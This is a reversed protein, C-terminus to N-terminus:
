FYEDGYDLLLEQGRQILKVTRVGVKEHGMEGYVFFEVNKDQRNKSTVSNIYRTWNSHELDQADLCLRVQRDVGDYRRTVDVDLVYDGNSESTCPLGIYDGLYTGQQLNKFAFAGRGAGEINSLGIRINENIYKSLFLKLSLRPSKPM